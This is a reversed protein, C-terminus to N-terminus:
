RRPSIISVKVCAARIYNSHNERLDANQPSKIPDWLWENMEDRYNRDKLQIILSNTDLDKIVSRAIPHNTKPKVFIYGDDDNFVVFGLSVNVMRRDFYNNVDSIFNGKCHDTMNNLCFKSVVQREMSATVYSSIVDHVKDIIEAGDSSYLPIYKTFRDSLHGITWSENAIYKLNQRYLNVERTSLSRLFSPDVQICLKDTNEITIFYCSLLLQQYSTYIFIYDSIHHPNCDKYIVRSM